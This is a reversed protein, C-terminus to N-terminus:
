RDHCASCLYGSGVSIGFTLGKKMRCNYTGVPAFITWIVFSTTSEINDAVLQHQGHYFGSPYTIDCYFDNLTIATSTTTFSDMEPMTM